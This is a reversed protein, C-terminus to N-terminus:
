KYINKKHGIEEEIKELVATRFLASISINNAKAYEKILKDEQTDIRLSIVAM